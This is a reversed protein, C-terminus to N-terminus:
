RCGRLMAIGHPPAAHHFRARRSRQIQLLLKEIPPTFQRRLRPHFGPPAPIKPRVPPLASQQPVIVRRIQLSGSPRPAPARGFPYGSNM